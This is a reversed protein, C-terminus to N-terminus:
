HVRCRIKFENRFGFGYSELNLYLLTLDQYPDLIPDKNIVSGFVVCLSWTPDQDPDFDM